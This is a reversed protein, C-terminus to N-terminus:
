IATDALTEAARVLATACAVPVGSRVLRDIVALRVVDIARHVDAAYTEDTSGSAASFGCTPADVSRGNPPPTSPREYPLPV